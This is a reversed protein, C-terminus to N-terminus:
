YIRVLRLIQLKVLPSMQGGAKLCRRLTKIAIQASKPEIYYAFIKNDPLGPLSLLQTFAVSGAPTIEPMLLGSGFFTDDAKLDIATLRSMGHPFASAETPVAPHIKGRVSKAKDYGHARPFIWGRTFQM